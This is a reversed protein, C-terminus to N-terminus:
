APTQQIRLEKVLKRAEYIDVRLLDALKGISIKANQYAGFALNRYREPLSENPLSPKGPEELKTAVTLRPRDDKTIWKLNVLRWLMAEASVGFNTRIYDITVTTLQRGDSIGLTAFMQKVALDPVLLAAAFSNARVESLEKMEDKEGLSQKATYVTASHDRDAILHGLEHAMTFRQREITCNTNVFICHGWQKSTLSFGWVKSDVLGRTIVKIGVSELIKDLEKVPALGLNLHARLAAACSEGDVIADWRSKLEKGWAPLGASPLLDLFQELLTYEKVLALVDDLVPKDNETVGDARFLVKVPDDITEEVPPDLFFSLPKQLARSLSVLEMSDVARKGSEIQSIAPRPVEIADALQEQNLGLNMRASRIREGLYRPYRFEKRDM